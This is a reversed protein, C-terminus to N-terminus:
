RRRFATRLRNRVRGLRPRTWQRAAKVRLGRQSRLGAAVADWWAAHEALRTPRVRLLAAAESPLANLVENIRVGSVVDALPLPRREIGWTALAGGIRIETYLSPAVGITPIGASCAFVTPHYRSTVVLDSARTLAATDLASTIPRLEYPASLHSAIRAHFAEDGDSEGPTAMHPLFAIHGGGRASVVADLLRAYAAAAQEVTFDGTEASFTAAVTPSAPVTVSAPPMVTADDLCRRLGRHRPCLQRALTRSREERLGVLLASNLLERLVERDPPSLEPGLTQGSIVVRKGLATCILAIAAREYLLWGYTSNLNGGGAILLADVDRLTEILRFVQDEPPLVGRVGAMVATIERLYRERDVPAWPFLLTRATGVAPGFHRATHEPDRTILVVDSIGRQALQAVAAHAMAEDGVHYVSQGIDNLVAVRM